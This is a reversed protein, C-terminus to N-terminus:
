RLIIKSNRIYRDRNQRAKAMYHKKFNFEYIGIQATIVVHLLNLLLTFNFENAFGDVCQLMYQFM